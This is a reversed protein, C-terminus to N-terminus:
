VMLKDQVCVGTVFVLIGDLVSTTLTFQLKIGLETADSQRKKRRLTTAGDPGEDNATASGLVMDNETAGAPSPVQVFQRGGFTAFSVTECNTGSVGNPCDCDFTNPTLETCVGNNLCPESDCEGIDTECNKGPFFIGDNIRCCLFQWIIHFECNFDSM